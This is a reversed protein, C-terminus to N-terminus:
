SRMPEGWRTLGPQEPDAAPCAETSMRAKRAVPCGCLGCVGTDRSGGGALRYAFQQPERVAHPCAQCAALRRSRTAEDAHTFGAAAWKALSRAARGLLEVNSASAAEGAPVDPMPFDPPSFRANAPDEILANLFGPARRSVLLRHAFNSDLMARRLVAPPLERDVGLIDAFDSQAEDWSAPALSAPNPGPARDGAEPGAENM